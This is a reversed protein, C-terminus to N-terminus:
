EYKIEEIVDLNSDQTNDNKINNDSTNNNTSSTADTIDSLAKLDKLSTLKGELSKYLTDAGIYSFLGVWFSYKIDVDTFTMTFIVGLVMNLVFSYLCVHKSCKFYSKTKQILAVSITSSATAVLLLSELLRWKIM